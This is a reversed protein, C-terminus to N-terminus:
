SDPNFEFVEIESVLFMDSGTFVLRGDIRTTNKYTSGLGRSHSPNVNCGDCIILDDDGFCV